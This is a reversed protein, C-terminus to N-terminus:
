LSRKHRMGGVALRRQPLPRQSQQAAAFLSKAPSSPPAVTVAAYAAGEDGRQLQPGQQQPQVSAGDTQSQYQGLPVGAPVALTGGADVEEEEEEEEGQEFQYDGWQEFQVGESSQVWQEEDGHVVGQGEPELQLGVQAQLERAELSLIEGLSCSPTSHPLPPQPKSRPWWEVAKCAAATLFIAAAEVVVVLVVLAAFVLSGLASVLMGATVVAAAAATTGLVLAAAAGAFVVVALAAGLVVLGLAAGAQAQTHLPLLCASSPKPLTISCGARPCRYHYIILADHERPSHETPAHPSSSCRTGATCCILCAGGGGQVCGNTNSQMYSTRVSVGRWAVATLLGTPLPGLLCCGQPFILWPPNPKCSCSQILLEGQSSDGIEMVFECVLNRILLGAEPPALCGM